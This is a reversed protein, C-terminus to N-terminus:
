LFICFLLKVSFMKPLFMILGIVVATIASILVAAAAVDKIIKAKDNYDPSIIDTLYEISTNFAESVFVFGISFVIICWETTNLKLFYGALIVLITILLHIRSNHQTKIFHKIGNFAYYFSKIRKNVSFQEKDKEM